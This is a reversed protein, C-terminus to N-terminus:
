LVDCCMLVCCHVVSCWVVVVVNFWFVSGCMGCVYWVCVMMVVGGGCVCGCGGWAVVCWVRVVAVVCGGCGALCPQACCVVFMM